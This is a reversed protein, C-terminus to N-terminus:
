AMSGTPWARESLQTSFSIDRGCSMDGDGIKAGTTTPLRQPDGGYGMRVQAKRRGGPLYLEVGLAAQLPAQRRQGLVALGQLAGPTSRFHGLPIRQDQPRPSREAM